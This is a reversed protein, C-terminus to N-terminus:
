SVTVCGLRLASLFMEREVNPGFCKSPKTRNLAAWDVPKSGDKKYVENCDANPRNPSPSALAWSEWVVPAEPDLQGFKKTEDAVGATGAKAQHNLFFFLRWAYEDPNSIALGADAPTGGPESITQGSAAGTALLVVAIAGVFIQSKMM